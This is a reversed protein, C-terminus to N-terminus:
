VASRLGCYTRLALLTVRAVSVVRWVCRWLVVRLCYAAYVGRTGDASSDYADVDTFSPAATTTATCSNM